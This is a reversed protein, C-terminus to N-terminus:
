RQGPLKFQPLNAELASLEKGLLQGAFGLARAPKLKGDAKIGYRGEPAIVAKTKVSRGELTSVTPGDTLFLVYQEGVKYPPDDELSVTRRELLTRRRMPKPEVDEPRPPIRRGEVEIPSLGTHFVEVTKRVSGKYGGELAFTVIEIPIRDENNPEGAVRMVLDKGRRIRIVRGKVIQGALDKAETMSTPRHAWSALWKEQPQQRMLPALQILLVVAFVASCAGLIKNLKM